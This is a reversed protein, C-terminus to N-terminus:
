ESLRDSMEMLWEETGGERGRERKREAEKARTREVRKRKGERGKGGEGQRSGNRSIQEM